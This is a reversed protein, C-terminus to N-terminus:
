KAVAPLIHHPRPRPGPRGPTSGAPTMQIGCPGLHFEFPIQSNTISAGGYCGSVRAKGRWGKESSSPFDKPLISIATTLARVRLWRLMWFRDCAVRNTEIRLSSQSSSPRPIHHAIQTSVKSGRNTGARRNHPKSPRDGLDLLDLAAGHLGRRTGRGSQTRLCPVWGSRATIRPRVAALLAIIPVCSPREIRANACETSLSGAASGVSMPHILSQPLQVRPKPHTLNRVM